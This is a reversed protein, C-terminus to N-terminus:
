NKKLNPSFVIKKLRAFRRLQQSCATWQRFREFLLNLNVDTNWMNVHSRQRANLQIRAPKACIERLIGWPAVKNIREWNVYAFIKTQKWSWRRQLAL